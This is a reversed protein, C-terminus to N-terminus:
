QRLFFFLEITKLSYPHFLISLVLDSREAKGWGVESASATPIEEKKTDALKLATPVDPDTHSDVQRSPELTSWGGM